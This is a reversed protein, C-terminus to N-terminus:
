TTAQRDLLRAAETSRGRETGYVSGNRIVVSRGCRCKLAKDEARESPTFEWKKGCECMYASTEEPKGSM